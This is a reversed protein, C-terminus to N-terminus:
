HPYVLEGIGFVIWFVIPIAGLALGLWVQWTRYNKRLAGIGSIVCAAGLPITFIASFMNDNPIFISVLVPIIFVLAAAGLGLVVWGLAKLPVFRVLLLGLVIGVVLGIIMFAM